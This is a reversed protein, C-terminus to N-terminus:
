LKLLLKFWLLGMAGHSTFLFNPGWGVFYFLSGDFVHNKEALNDISEIRDDFLKHVKLRLKSVFFALFKGFLELM